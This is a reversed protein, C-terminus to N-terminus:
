HRRTLDAMMVGPIDAPHYFAGYHNNDNSPWRSERSFVNGSHRASEKFDSNPMEFDAFNKGSIQQTADRHSGLPTSEEATLAEARFNNDDNDQPYWSPFANPNERMFKPMDSPNYSLRFDVAPPSSYGVSEPEKFSADDTKVSNEGAIATNESFIENASADDNSILHAAAAPSNYEIASVNVDTYNDDINLKPGLENIKDHVITSTTSVKNSVQTTLIERPPNTTIPFPTFSPNMLEDATPRHLKTQLKFVPNNLRELDVDGYITGRHESSYYKGPELMEDDQKNVGREGGSIWNEEPKEDQVILSDLNGSQYEAHPEIVHSYMSQAPDDPNVLEQSTLDPSPMVIFPDPVEKYASEQSIFSLPINIHAHTSETSSVDVNQNPDHDYDFHPIINGFMQYIGKSTATEEPSLANKHLTEFAPASASAATNNLLVDTEIANLEQEIGTRKSFQDNDTNKQDNVSLSSDHSETPVYRVQVPEYQIYVLGPNPSGPLRMLFPADAGFEFGSDDKRAPKRVQGQPRENQPSSNYENEAIRLSSLDFDNSYHLSDSAETSIEDHPAIVSNTIKNDTSAIEGRESVSNADLRTENENGTRVTTEESLKNINPDSFLMEELIDIVNKSGDTSDRTKPSAVVLPNEEVPAADVEGTSLTSTSIDYDSIWDITSNELSISGERAESELTESAEDPSVLADSEQLNTEEGKETMNSSANIEVKEVATHEGEKDGDESINAVADDYSENGDESKQPDEQTQGSNLGIDVDVLASDGGDRVSAGNANDSKLATTLEDFSQVPVKEGNDLVLVHSGYVLRNKLYNDFTEESELASLPVSLSSKPHSQSVKVEGNIIELPIEILESANSNEGNREEANDSAYAADDYQQADSFETTVDISSISETIVKTNGDSSDLTDKIITAISNLIDNQVKERGDSEPYPIEQSLIPNQSQDVDMYSDIKIKDKMTNLSPGKVRIQYIDKMGDTADTSIVDLPIDQKTQEYDPFDFMPNEDITQTENKEESNEIQTSISDENNKSTHIFTPPKDNPKWAPSPLRAQEIDNADITQSGNDISTKPISAKTADYDVELLADTDFDELTTVEPDSKSSDGSQALLDNIGIVGEAHQQPMLSDYLNEYYEYGKFGDPVQSTAETSDLQSEITTQDVPDSIEIIVKNEVPHQGDINMRHTSNLVSETSIYLPLSTTTIVEEDGSNLEENETDTIVYNDDMVSQPQSSPESVSAGVLSEPINATELSLEDNNSKNVISMDEEHSPSTIEIYEIATNNNNRNYTTELPPSSTRESSNPVEIPLRTSNEIEEELPIDEQRLLYEHSNVVIDDFHNQHGAMSIHKINHYVTEPELPPVRSFLLEDSLTSMIKEMEDISDVSGLQDNVSQNVAAEKGSPAITTNEFNMSALIDTFSERLLEDLSTTHELQSESLSIDVNPKVHENMRNPQQEIASVREANELTVEEPLVTTLEEVVSTVGSDDRETSVFAFQQASVETIANTSDNAVIEEVGAAEETEEGAKDENGSDDTNLDNLSYLDIETTSIIDYMVGGPEEVEDAEIVQQDFKDTSSREPDFAGETRLNDGVIFSNGTTSELDMSSYTTSPLSNKFDEKFYSSDADGLSKIVNAETPTEVESTSPIKSTHIELINADNESSRIDEELVLHSHHMNETDDHLNPGHEEGTKLEESNLETQVKFQYTSSDEEKLSGEVSTHSLESSLDGVSSTNNENEAKASSEVLSSIEQGSAMVPTKINGNLIALLPDGLPKENQIDPKQENETENSVSLVPHVEDDINAQSEDVIAQENAASSDNVAPNTHTTSDSTNQFSNHNVDESTSSNADSTEKLKSEEAGANATHADDIKTDGLTYNQLDPFFTVLKIGETTLSQSTATPTHAVTTTQLEELDTTDVFDSISETTSFQEGSEEPLSSFDNADMLQSDNNVDNFTYFEDDYFPPEDKEFVYDIQIDPNGAYHLEGGPSLKNKTHALIAESLGPIKSYSITGGPPRRSPIKSASVLQVKLLDDEASWFKLTKREGRGIIIDEGCKLM